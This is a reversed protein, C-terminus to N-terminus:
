EMPGIFPKGSQGGDAPKAKAKFAQRYEELVRIILQALPRGDADARRQLFDKLTKNIRVSTPYNPM